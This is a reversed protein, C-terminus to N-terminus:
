NDTGNKLEVFRRELIRSIHQNIQQELKLQQIENKLEDHLRQIEEDFTFQTVHELDDDQPKNIVSARRLHNM